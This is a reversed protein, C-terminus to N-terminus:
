CCKNGQEQWKECPLTTRQHQRNSFSSSDFDKTQQLDFTSIKSSETRIIKHTVVTGRKVMAGGGISIGQCVGGWEKRSLDTQKLVQIHPQILYCVNYIELKKIWWQLEEEHFKQKSDSKQM